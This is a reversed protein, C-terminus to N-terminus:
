IDEFDFTQKEKRQLNKLCMMRKLNVIIEELFFNEGQFEIRVRKM